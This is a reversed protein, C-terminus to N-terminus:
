KSNINNICSLNLLELKPIYKIKDCFLKISENDIKNALIMRYISYFSLVTIKTIFLLNYCIYKM